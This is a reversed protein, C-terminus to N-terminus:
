GSRARRPGTAAPPPHEVHFTAQQPEHLAGQNGHPRRPASRSGGEGLRIAFPAAHARVAQDRAQACASKAPMPQCAAGYARGRGGRSCAALVSTGSARSGASTRRATGDSVGSSRGESPGLGAAACAAQRRRGAEDTRQEVPRQARRRQERRPHGPEAVADHAERRAHAMPLASAGRSPGPAGPGKAAIGNETSPAPPRYGSTRQLLNARAPPRPSVQSLPEGRRNATPAASPCAGAAPTSWGRRGPPGGRDRPPRSASVTTPERASSGRAQALRRRHPATGRLNRGAQSHARHASPAGPLVAPVRRPLVPM